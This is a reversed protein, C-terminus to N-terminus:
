QQTFQDPNELAPLLDGNYYTIVGGGGGGGGFFFLLSFCHCKAFGNM